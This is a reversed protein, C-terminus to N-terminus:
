PELSRLRVLEEYLAAGEGADTVRAATLANACQGRGLHGGKPMLAVDRRQRADHRVVVELAGLKSELRARVGDSLGGAADPHVTVELPGTPTRVWQSSQSKETSLAMLKLPWQATPEAEPQPPVHVLNVRGTATPFKLDHFLVKPALPNRVYGTELQELTIGRPGLKPAIVREKWERATGAMVEALGVRAALLQIIELDSKVEPPPAVVPRSVGLYHHGYAGLIDDAELLTTTPLVLTALKATDTLFSDVVVVLERSSLARAVAYSDPLMTVPNGCTIWVARIPPDAAKELDHAFTIECVTRPGEGTRYTEFAMRRALYFSVGGGPVDLNGSIASLADLARVTASGASRRQMGWGVLIACPKEPGLRRALDHAVEPEVDAESAWQEVSKSRAMAEFDGLHDCYQAARPDVWGRQFLVHATAMALAFDGGPRPQVYRECSDATRHRVPDILVLKAGKRRADMLVPLTHPSSVHVNKGWLLVHRSNLLDFLDNADEVGFDLLQAADGAGSCIDGRKATCPGYAEFFRETLLKLIGLSGGSRYHFIAAPGSERKIRELQEAAFGMAEDWGVPTLEGHKRLLPRTLREPSRQTDLFQSTRYCLAGRTVPHDRDGALRVVEGNEVTAIISCTDPCDRNCTTRLKM